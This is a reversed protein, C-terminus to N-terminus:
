SRKTSLIPPMWLFIEREGTGAEALRPELEEKVFKEQEKQKEATLAQSPVSRVKRYEFKLQKFFKWIQPLSRSIGAIEKIKERAEKLSHPPHAAFYQEISQIHPKLKNERGAYNIAKLGEIGGTIYLKLYSALTARTIGCINCIQGHLLGNSKLFLVEMKLQVKPSPHYFREWKLAEIESETFKITIM